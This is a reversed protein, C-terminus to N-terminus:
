DKAKYWVREPASKTPSSKTSLDIQALPPAQWCRIEGDLGVGYVASGDKTFRARGVLGHHGYLTALEVGRYPDWIKVTHDASPSILRTGDPSFSLMNVFGMHGRLTHQLRLGDALMRWLKITSDAGCTALLQGDRSFDIGYLHPAHVTQKWLVRGTRECLTLVGRRDGFAIRAGDPSYDIAFIEDQTPILQRQQYSDVDLIMLRKGCGFALELGDPSLSLSNAERNGDIAIPNFKGSEVHLIRLADGTLCFLREGDHSFVVRPFSNPTYPRFSVRWIPKRSHRDWVGLTGDPGVVAFREGNPSIALDILPEHVSPPAFLGRHLLTSLKYVRIQGFGGILILNEGNASFAVRSISEGFGGAIGVERRSPLEWIHATQDASASAILKGDPSFAIGAVVPGRHLLGKALLTRWDILTLDQEDLTLVVYAGDPSFGELKFAGDRGYDLKLFERIRFDWVRYNGYKGYLLRNNDATFALLEVTNTSRPPAPMPELANLDWIGIVGNTACAALRTGDHSFTLTSIVEAFNGMTGIQTDTTLDWTMVRHVVGDQCGVALERRDHSMVVKSIPGPLHLTPGAEFRPLSYVTLSHQATDIAYASERAPDWQWRVSASQAPPTIPVPEWTAMDWARLQDAGRQDLSQNYLFDKSRFLRTQEWGSPAPLGELTRIPESQQVAHALYRWEFGRLDNEGRQAVHKLLLERAHNFAGEHVKQSALRMDSAYLSQRTNLREKNIRFAAIPGGIGLVLLLVVALVVSTALAPKRRCWRWAWEARTVPRAQIPEDKSFRDLEEAVEQATAYRRSPEKELCKLCITELDRPVSPNLLRPSLPESTQVQQLTESITEARFPPRATLLHYLIAGLSYVDSTRGVKTKAGGSQEPPLYNPSGLVHGSLTLETNPTELKSNTLRKALGFDTVRPRDDSGILVNSPKLDRHLIGRDHAYQVADAIAKLYTAAQKAPLPHDQVLRSLNPGDVYDMVLFHQGEHLGVEHVTVINPHQLSGAASAEIRFRRIQEASAMSGFLIMKVAVIRDLSRQRAKYVVGMGGRAIEEILEYDGFRRGEGAPMGSSPALGPAAGTGSPEDIEFLCVPCLGRPADPPLEMGCFSCTSRMATM